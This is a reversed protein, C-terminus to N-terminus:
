TRSMRAMFPTAPHMWECPSRGSSWSQPADQWWAISWGLQYYHWALAQGIGSSAGTIYVLGAGHGAM